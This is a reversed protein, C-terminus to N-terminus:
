KKRVPRVPLGYCRDRTETYTDLLYYQGDWDEIGFFMERARDPADNTKYLRTWYIAYIGTLNTGKRCGTSPLFISRGEYKKSKFLVGYVGNIQKLSFTTNNLLETFQDDSPMQWESGWNATAADDVPLLENKNDTFGNYGYSSKNCYKTLTTNSGKCYKYTEWSYDSKPTTEGWAFYDGCDEPSSAGVNRTAWLTGSSLGLDVWEYEDPVVEDTVTVTCEATVDSGDTASCIITCTGAAKATVFGNTDVTAVDANSSEWALVKNEADSPEITATLQKKDNPKLDLSTYNLRIKSVLKFPTGGEVRVPRISQGYFRDHHETGWYNSSFNLPFAYDVSLGGLSNSWYYGTTGGGMLSSGSRWGAAPLFISNGNKKSTIKRGMVGNLTTWESTTYEGNLLENIQAVTPIQWSSDLIAKAADDEADLEQKNDGVFAGGSYWCGDTQNDPFTYKNIYNWDDKGATMWKYTGWTYNGKPETEGWAFYSGYEEPSEAGLNCTAWLTRSPLALDVYDVVEGVVTVHCEAYVGSGDTARCTITCTGPSVATVSCKDVTAVNENSSEMTYAPNTADEPLVEVEFWDMEGVEMELETPSLLIKTVLIGAVRVPRVSKGIYRDSESMSSFDSNFILNCARPTYNTTLSRSWYTGTNGADVLNSVICSGTAPLFISKGNRRSKILYGNVGNLKTWETTTNDTNILEKFQEKSPMQWEEGWNVWAADDYLELQTLNDGNFEGDEYWAGDMCGDPITYRWIDMWTENGCNYDYNSWMYEAKPKTEAWAFYDGYQEPKSAGVNCTAWLTGSPLELDVWEKTDPIEAEVFTIDRVQSVDFEVTRDDVLNVQVKQAWASQVGALMMLMAALIFKGKM